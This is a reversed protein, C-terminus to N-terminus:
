QPSVVCHRLAYQLNSDNSDNVLLRITGANENLYPIFWGNNELSKLKKLKTFIVAATEYNISFFMQNM